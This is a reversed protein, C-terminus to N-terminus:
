ELPGLVFKPGQQSYRGKGIGIDKSDSFNQSSHKVALGREKSNQTPVLLIVKEYLNHIEYLGCTSFLLAATGTLNM